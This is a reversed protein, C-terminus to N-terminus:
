FNKVKSSVLKYHAKDSKDHQAAPRRMDFSTEERRRLSTRYTLVQYGAVCHFDKPFLDETLLVWLRALVQNM